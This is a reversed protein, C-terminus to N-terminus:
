NGWGSKNEEGLEQSNRVGSGSGQRIATTEVAMLSNGKTRARRRKDQGGWSGAAVHISTPSPGLCAQHMADM